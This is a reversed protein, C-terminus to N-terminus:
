KPYTLIAMTVSFGIVIGMVFSLVKWATAARWAPGGVIIVTDEGMPSGGRGDEMLDFTRGSAPDVQWWGTQEKGGLAVAREPVIVVFGGALAEKIRAKAVSSIALSAVDTSKPPLTRIAVGTRAAEAFVQAVSGAPPPTDPTLDAGADAGAREAVHALVGALVRPHVSQGAGALPVVGYSQHIVDLSAALSFEEPNSRVPSLIAATLNPQDNYWRYGHAAAVEVQLWDRSAHYGHVLLAMDAAVDKITYDQDFYSGPVRGGIVGVLWVAELPLYVTGLRPDQILEVPPLSALDVPGAARRDVGVRDFVERTISQAPGDPSLVEIELWEGVAEGDNGGGGLAELAGGGAGFTLPDGIEGGQGALLSPVYQTTGNIFGGISVGLKKLANPDVHAFVVPVGVLDAARAEHVFSDSRVAAGSVNKEVVARFRVRHFLEDPITEWIETPKAYAKGPEAGPFSPDLDIWQPGDAYQLWVHQRRERDRLGTAPNPLSIAKGALATQLTTLGDQLEAGARDLVQKRLAEPSQLAARQQPTLGPYQDLKPKSGAGVREAQARVAAEDLHMSALLKTAAADDLEGAAFRVSVQAATLMDALLLAQDVSNGALSWHAGKPGRLAGSYSEYAIQDAVFRFIKGLDFQLNWLVQNLDPGGPAREEAAVGGPGPTAQAAAARAAAPSGASAIAAVAGLGLVRLLSRRTVQGRDLAARSSGPQGLSPDEM